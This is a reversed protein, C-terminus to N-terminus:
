PTSESIEKYGGNCYWDNMALSKYLSFQWTNKQFRYGYELLINKVIDSTLLLGNKEYAYLDHSRNALEASASSSFVIGLGLETFHNSVRKIIKEEWGSPPIITYSLKYPPHQNLETILWEETFIRVDDEYPHILQNFENTPAKAHKTTNCDKCCPILNLTFVSFLPYNSKPLFHDITSVVGVGCYPCKNYKTLGIIEDYLVRANRNKVLQKEYLDIFDDKQCPGSFFSVGKNLKPIKYLNQNKLNHQYDKIAKSIVGLRCELRMRLEKNVISYVCKLYFEYPCTSIPTIKIM